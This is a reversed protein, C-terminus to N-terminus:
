QGLLFFLAFFDRTAPFFGFLTKCESDFITVDVVDQGDTLFDSRMREQLATWSIRISTSMMMRAAFVFFSRDNTRAVGFLKDHDLILRSQDASEVGFLDKRPRVKFVHKTEDYLVSHELKVVSVLLLHVLLAYLIDFLHQTASVLVWSEIADSLVSGLLRLCLFSFLSILLFFSRFFWFTGFGDV